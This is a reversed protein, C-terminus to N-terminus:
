IATAHRVLFDFYSTTFYLYDKKPVAPNSFTRKYITKDLSFYVIIM